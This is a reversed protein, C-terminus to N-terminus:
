AAHVRRKHSTMIGLRSFGKSCVNCVFPKEGTHTRLHRIMNSSSSFGKSCVNCVFPKEGSHSRFHVTLSCSQFFGKHCVNCVDYPKEGTHTRRHVILYGSTSFGKRCVDCVFPKEGTHTRLHRALSDSGSLSKRCVECVFPKEGTHTRLHRTLSSSMAFGKNCVKCVFPKEGTHTRVHITLAGPSEFTKGCRECAHRRARQRKGGREQGIAESKGEESEKGKVEAGEEERKRNGSMNLLQTAQPSVRNGRRAAAATAAAALGCLLNLGVANEEGTTEGKDEEGKGEEEEEERKRKGPMHLSLLLLLLLPHQLSLHPPYLVPPTFPIHLRCHHHSSAPTTHAAPLCLLTLWLLPCSLTNLSSPLATSHASPSLLAPSNLTAEWWSRGRSLAPQVCTCPFFLTNLLPLHFV